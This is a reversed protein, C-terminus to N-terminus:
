KKGKNAPQKTTQVKEKKPPAAAEKSAKCVACATYGNKKADKLEMSKKGTKVISCNKAHYKKGGDTVYVTQSFGKISILLFSILVLSFNIIKKM